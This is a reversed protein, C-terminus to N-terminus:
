PTMKGTRNKIKGGREGVEGDARRKRM